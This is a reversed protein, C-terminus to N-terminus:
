YKRSRSQSLAPLDRMRGEILAIKKTRSWGHLRREMAWADDIREFEMAWALAVPLRDATYVAGLGSSHQGLRHEVDRTSGVYFSDDACRLIHAWPM